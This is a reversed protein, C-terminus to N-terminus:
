ALAKLRSAGQALYQANSAGLPVCATREPRAGDIKLPSALVRLEAAEPHSVSMVMGTEEMFTGDFADQVSYIPAVPVAGTLVTLWEETTRQMM